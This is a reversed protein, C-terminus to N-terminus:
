ARFSAAESYRAQIPRVRAEAKHYPEAVVGIDAVSFITEAELCIHMEYTYCGGADVYHDSKGSM